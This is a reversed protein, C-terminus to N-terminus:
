GSRPRPRRPAAGPRLGGGRAGRCLGRANRAELHLGLRRGAARPRLQGRSPRHVGRLPHSELLAEAEAPIRFTPQYYVHESGPAGFRLPHGRPQFADVEPLQLAEVFLSRDDDFRVIGVERLDDLAELLAYSAFLRESGTADPLAILGGLWALGGDGPVTEAPAM